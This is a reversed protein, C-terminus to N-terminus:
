QVVGSDDEQMALYCVKDFQYFRCFKVTWGDAIHAEVESSDIYKSIWAM